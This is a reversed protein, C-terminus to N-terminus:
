VLLFIKIIVPMINQTNMLSTSFKWNNKSRRKCHPWHYASIMQRWLMLAAVYKQCCIFVYVYELLYSKPFVIFHLKGKQAAPSTPSFPASSEIKFKFYKIWDIINRHGLWFSSHVSFKGEHELPGRSVRHPGQLAMHDVSLVM